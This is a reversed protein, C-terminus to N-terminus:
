MLKEYDFTEEDDSAAVGNGKSGKSGQIQRLVSHPDFYSLPHINNTGSQVNHPINHNLTYPQTDVVPVHSDTSSFPMMLMSNSYSYAPDLFIQNTSSSEEMPFSPQPLQRPADDAQRNNAVQNVYNRMLSDSFNFNEAMVSNQQATATSSMDMNENSYSIPFVSELGHSAQLFDGSAPNTILTSTPVSVASNSADIEPFFVSQQQQHSSTYAPASQPQSYIITGQGGAMSMMGDDPSNRSLDHSADSRSTSSRVKPRVSSRRRSRNSQNNAMPDITWYSGKGPDSPDRQVRSFLKSFSLNHRVSNKWSAGSSKYYPFNDSIWTYIDTLTLKGGPSQKIAVAILTSYSFNPRQGSHREKEIRQLVENLDQNDPLCNANNNSDASAGSVLSGAAASTDGGINAPANSTSYLDGTSNKRSGILSNDVPPALTYKALVAGTLPTAFDSRSSSSPISSSRGTMPIVFDSSSIPAATSASNGTATNMIVSDRNVLTLWSINTLSCDLQQQQLFSLPELIQDDRHSPISNSSNNIAPM